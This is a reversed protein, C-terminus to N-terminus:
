PPGSPIGTRTSVPKSARFPAPGPDFPPLFADAQEPAPLEVPERTFSLHFGDLNVLVPLRM